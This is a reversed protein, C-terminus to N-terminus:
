STTHTHTTPKSSHPPPGGTGREPHPTHTHQLSVATLRRGELAERLIHHTHQLSVATLRRGELAERLIDIGEHREGRAERLVLGAAAQQM